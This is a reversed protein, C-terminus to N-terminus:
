FPSWRSDPNPDVKGRITVHKLMPFSASMRDVQGTDWSGSLTTSVHKIHKSSQSPDQVCRLSKMEAWYRFTARDLYVDSAIPHLTKCVLIPVLFKSKNPLLKKTTGTCIRSLNVEIDSYYARLIMVLIEQPLDMLSIRTAMITLQQLCTSTSSQSVLATSFVYYVFNSSLLTNSTKAKRSM